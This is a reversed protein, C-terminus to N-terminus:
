RIAAATTLEGSAPQLLSLTARFALFTLHPPMHENVAPTTNTADEACGSACTKEISWVAWVKQTPPQEVSVANPNGVITAKTTKTPARATNKRRKM